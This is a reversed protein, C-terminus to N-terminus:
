FKLKKALKAAIAAFPNNAELALPKGFDSSESIKPAFPIKGLFEIGYAAALEGVGNQNGFIDHTEGCSPCVFGSMNEVVGLLPVRLRKFAAAAKRVDALAVEQPTSVLVAGVLPVRTALTLPADGTGPPMDIVLVDLPAWRSRHILQELAKIIMPGRWILPAGAELLFGVSLCKVGHATLPILLQQEGVSEAGPKKGELGMIKPVSPGYIDADLLGVKLGGVAFATALNAALTSKGVGGKGSAVAIIRKIGQTNFQQPQPRSAAATAKATVIFELEAVGSLATKLRKELEAYAAADSLVAEVIVTVRKDEVKIKSLNPSQRLPLQNLPDKFRSLISDIKKMSYVDYKLLNDHANYSPCQGFHM